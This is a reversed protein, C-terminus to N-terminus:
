QSDPHIPPYICVFGAFESYYARGLRLPSTQDKEGFRKM